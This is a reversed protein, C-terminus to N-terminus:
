RKHSQYAAQSILDISKIVLAHLVIFVSTSYELCYKVQSVRIGKVKYSRRKLMSNPYCSQSYVVQLTSLTFSM